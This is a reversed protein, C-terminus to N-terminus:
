IPRELGPFFFFRKRLTSNMEPVQKAREPTSGEISSVEAHVRTLMQCIDEHAAWRSFVKCLSQVFWTGRVSNRWSVYHATTSQAILIDANTPEK